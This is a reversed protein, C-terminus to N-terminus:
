HQEFHQWMREALPNLRRNARYARVEFLVQLHADGLVVLQGAKCASCVMSWPLWAVGLGKLAYEYVADASDCEIVPQLRPAHRNNSLHHQVLRGLALTGGYALYPTAATAGFAHQGRGRTNAQTVPVLKDQMLTHHTYQRASIRVALPPHHFIPMLAAEGRELMHSTETMSRTLIRLEGQAM